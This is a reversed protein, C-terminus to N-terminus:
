DRRCRFTARAPAAPQQASAPFAARGDAAPFAHHDRRGIAAVGDEHRRQDSLAAHREGAEDEGAAPTRRGLHRRNQRCCWEVAQRDEAGVVIREGRCRPQRIQGSVDTAGIAVAHLAHDREDGFLDIRPRQRTPEIQRDIRQHRRGNEPMAQDLGRARGAAPDHQGLAFLRSRDAGRRDAGLLADGMADQEADGSRIRSTAADCPM